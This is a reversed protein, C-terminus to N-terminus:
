IGGAAGAAHQDGAMARLPRALINALILDYPGGAAVARHRYGASAVARVVSSRSVSM